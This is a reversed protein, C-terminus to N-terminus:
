ISLLFLFLTKIAFKNTTVYLKFSFYFKYKNKPTFYGLYEWSFSANVM